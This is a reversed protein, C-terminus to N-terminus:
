VPNVRDAYRVTFSDTRQISTLGTHQEMGHVQGRSDITTARHHPGKVDAVHLQPTLELSNFGDHSNVHSDSGSATSGARKRSRLLLSTLSAAVDHMTPISLRTVYRLTPVCGMIIVLDQEVCTVLNIIGELYKWTSGLSATRGTIQMLAITAKAAAAGMTVLSTALLLSISIRRRLGMNLKSIILIPFLVFTLDSISCLLIYVVATINYIKHNWERGGPLSPNWYVEYPQSQGFTMVLVTIGVLSQLITFIVVFRKFWVQPSFLQLLLLAISVRALISIIYVAPAIIWSWKTIMVRQLPTLTDYPRGSGWKCMFTLGVQYFIQVALAALMTWDHVEWRHTFKWRLHFRALVATIALSTLTWSVGLTWLNIGLDEAM